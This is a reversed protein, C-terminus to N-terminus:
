GETPTALGLAASALARGVDRGLRILAADRDLDLGASAAVLTRRSLEREFVLDGAERVEGRARLVLEESRGKPLGASARPAAGFEDLRLVQIMLMTAGRAEFAGLEALRDRAGRLVARLVLPEPVLPAEGGVDLGGQQGSM